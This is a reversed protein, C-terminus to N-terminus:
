KLQPPLKSPDFDGVCTAFDWIYGEPDEVRFTRDGWFRLDLPLLIKLGLDKAKQYRTELDDCYIYLSVPSTIKTIAPAVGRHMEEPFPAHPLIVLNMAQYTLRAFMVKDKKNTVRQHESFGFVKTYFDLAAQTDRVSLFTTLWNLENPKAPRTM